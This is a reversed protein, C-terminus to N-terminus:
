RRAGLPNPAPLPLSRPWALRPARRMAQLVRGHACACVFACMGMRGCHACIRLNKDMTVTCFRAAHHRGSASCWASAARQARLAFRWSLMSYGPDSYQQVQRSREEKDKARTNYPERPKGHSFTALVNSNAGLEPYRTSCEARLFSLTGSAMVYRYTRIPILLAAFTSEQPWM